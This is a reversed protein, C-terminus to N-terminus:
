GLLCLSLAQCVLSLVYECLTSSTPEGRAERFPSYLFPPPLTLLPELLASPLKAKQSTPPAPATVERPGGTVGLLAIGSAVHITCKSPYTM